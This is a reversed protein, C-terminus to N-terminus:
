LRNNPVGYFVLFHRALLSKEVTFSTTNEDKIDKEDM